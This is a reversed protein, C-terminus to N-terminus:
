TLHPLMVKKCGALWVECEERTCVQPLLGLCCALMASTRESYKRQRWDPAKEECWYTLARSLADRDPEPERSVQEWLHALSAPKWGALELAKRAADEPTLQWVEALMAVPSLYRSEAFCYGHDPYVRLAAEAGLDEHLEDFPCHARSGRERAHHVRADKAGGQAWGLATAFGVKRNAVAVLGQQRKTVGDPWANARM